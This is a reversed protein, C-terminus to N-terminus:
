QLNSIKVDKKQLYTIITPLADLTAQSEHMLIISGSVDEKKIAQIIKKTNKSKWDETDIDWLVIKTNYKDILKITDNNKAGYPPRFLVVPEGTIKKILENTKTLEKEQKKYSLKPFNPHTMSHSGISFGNEHAYKVDQPRNKVNVGIYFFTAGVEAKKLVDIMKTSYKSPGDDFTLAVSGKPVTYNVNEKFSIVPIAPIDPKKTEVEQEKPAAKVAATTVKETVKETKMPESNDKITEEAKVQESDHLSLNTYGFYSLAIVSIMLAAVWSVKKKNLSLSYPLKKRPEEEIQDMKQPEDVTYRSLFSLTDLQEITNYKILKLALTYEKSCSFYVPDEKTLTNKQLYSVYKTQSHDCASYFPLLYTDNTNFHTIEQLSTATMDDIKWMFEIEQDALLNIHLFFQEQQKHIAILELQKEGNVLM